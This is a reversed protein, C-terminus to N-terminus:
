SNGRNNSAGSPPLSRERGLAAGRFSAGRSYRCSRGDTAAGPLTAARWLRWTTVNGGTGSGVVADVGVIVVTGQATSGAVPHDIECITSSADLRASQQRWTLRCLHVSQLPTQTAKRARNGRTPQKPMDPPHRLCRFQGKPRPSDHLARRQPAVAPDYGHFTLASSRARAAPLSGPRPVAPMHSM